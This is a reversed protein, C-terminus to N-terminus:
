AKKKFELALVATLERHRALLAKRKRGAELLLEVAAAKGQPIRKSKRKGHGTRYQLVPDTAYTSVTGDKCTYKAKKGKLLNGELYPGVARAETEVKRLEATLQKEDM